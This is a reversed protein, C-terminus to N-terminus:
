TEVKTAQPRYNPLEWKVRKAIGPDPADSGLLRPGNPLYAGPLGDVLTDGGRASLAEAFCAEPRGGPTKGAAQPPIEEAAPLCGGTEVRPPRRVRLPRGLTFSFRLGAGVFFALAATLGM